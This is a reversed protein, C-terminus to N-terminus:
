RDRTGGPPESHPSSGKSGPRERARGVRPIGFFSGRWWSVHQDLEEEAGELAAHRAKGEGDHEIPQDLSKM